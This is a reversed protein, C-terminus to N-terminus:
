MTHLYSIIANVQGDNLVNGFAPMMARGMKITDKVRADNAPAGSPLDRREFVGVLSPASKGENHCVGCYQAYLQQGNYNGTDASVEQSAPKPPPPPGQKEARAIEAQTHGGPNTGGYDCAALALTLLVALTFTFLLSCKKSPEIKMM